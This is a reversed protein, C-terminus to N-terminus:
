NYVYEDKTIACGNYLGPSVIVCVCVFVGM